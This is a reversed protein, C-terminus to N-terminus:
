DLVCGLLHGGLAVQLPRGTPVVVVDSALRVPAGILALTAVGHDVRTVVGHTLVRADSASCRVHCHEGVAVDPLPVRLEGVRMALPSACPRWCPM